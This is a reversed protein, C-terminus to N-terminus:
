NQAYLSLLIEINDLTQLLMVPNDSTKEFIKGTKGFTKWTKITRM